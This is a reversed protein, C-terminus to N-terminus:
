NLFDAPDSIEPYSQVFGKKGYFYIFNVAGPVIQITSKYVKGRYDISIEYTGAPLDNQVFNERFFVDNQQRDLLKQSYTMVTWIQGNEISKLQFPKSELMFNGDNLIQGALVGHNVPPGLWLEPNEVIADYGKQVRVEFHLHPGSTSGTVGISGIQEGSKVMQGTGVLTNDLHGYVSYIARGEFSFSHKIMVAIGYPDDRDGAGNMLGYGSFVVEGDGVALVPQRMPAVIDLGTHLSNTKSDYYGFRYDSTPWKLASLEIPRALYFHDHLALALPLDYLPPFIDPEVTKVPENFEIVALAPTPTTQNTQPPPSQALAPAAIILLISVLILGPFISGIFRSHYQDNM